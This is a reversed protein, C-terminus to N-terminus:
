LYVSNNLSSYFIEGFDVGFNQKLYDRFEKTGIRTAKDLHSIAEVYEKSQILHIFWLMHYTFKESKSQIICSNFINGRHYVDLESFFNIYSMPIDLSSGSTLFNISWSSKTMRLLVYNGLDVDGEKLSIKNKHNYSLNIFESLVNIARM